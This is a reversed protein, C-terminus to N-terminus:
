QHCLNWVKMAVIIEWVSVAILMGFFFILYGSIRMKEGVGVIEYLYLFIVSICSLIAGHVFPRYLTFEAKSSIKAEKIRRNLRYDQIKGEKLLGIRIKIRKLQFILLLVWAVLLIVALIVNLVIMVNQM